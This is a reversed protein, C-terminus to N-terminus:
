FRTLTQYFQRVRPFDNVVAGDVEVWAHALFPVPRAGIVVRAAIGKNRLLCATIASRQLCLARKPYWICAQEVAACVEAVVAGKDSVEAKQTSWAAVRSLLTRFSGCSLIIDLFALGLFAWLTLLRGPQCSEQNGQAHLTFSSQQFPQPNEETQTTLLYSDLQLGFQSIKKLLARLDEAVRTTDVNYQEATLKVVEAETRATNLLHWMEIGTANLKLLRDHKPDCVVAGRDISMVYLVPKDPNLVVNAPRAELRPRDYRAPNSTNMDCKEQYRWDM